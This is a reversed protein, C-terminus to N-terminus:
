ALPEDEDLTNITNLYQQAPLLEAEITRRMLRTFRHPPGYAIEVRINAVYPHDISEIPLPIFHSFYTTDANAPLVTGRTQPDIQPVGNIELVRVEYRLPRPIANRLRLLFRMQRAVVAEPTGTRRDEQDIRILSLSYAYEDALTALRQDEEEVQRSKEAYLRAPIACFGWLYRLAYLVAISGLSGIAGWILPPLDSPALLALMVGSGFALVVVGVPDGLRSKAWEYAESRSTRSVLKWFEWTGM